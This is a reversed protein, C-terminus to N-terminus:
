SQGVSPLLDIAVAEMNQFISVMEQKDPPQPTAQTNSPTNSPYENYRQPPYYSNGPQSYPPYAASAAQQGYAEGGSSISQSRQQHPRYPDMSGEPPYVSGPRTQAATSGYSYSNSRSLSPNYMPQPPYQGYASDRSLNAPLYPNAQHRTNGYRAVSSEMLNNYTSRAEHFKENLGILDDKKRGYSGILKVLKPRLSLSINYLTQLEENETLHDRHPDIKGLVQLLRDVNHAEAMVEEEDEQHPSSGHQSEPLKEVYNVPFIGIRGRLDGKWWEKYKTEVVTIVDGKYFGLEGSETAKFDFLARVRTAELSQKPEIKKAQAGNNTAAGTYASRQYNKRSENESLSLALALQLEDEEKLKDLESQTPKKPAQPTPFQYNQERLQSYTEQMLSLTSDNRFEFNWQQILELIRNKVLEHVNRDNLMRVLHTTFARSCIERHVEIGCNKVLAETLTLAYLLVNANRHTLRKSVAAVCDRGGNATKNVRDCVALILEWDDSTLNESTANAVAEDFPNANRFM